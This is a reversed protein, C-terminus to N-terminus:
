KVHMRTEQRDECVMSNRLRSVEMKAGKLVMFLRYINCVELQEVNENSTQQIMSM